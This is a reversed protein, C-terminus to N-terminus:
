VLVILPSPACAANLPIRYPCHRKGYSRIMSPDTASTAELVEMGAVFIATAIHTETASVMEVVDGAFAVPSSASDATSVGESVSDSWVAPGGYINQGYPNTGFNSM